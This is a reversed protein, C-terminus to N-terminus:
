LTFEEKTFFEVPKAEPYLLKSVLQGFAPATMPQVSVLEEAILKPFTKRLIPLSMMTKGMQRGKAFVVKRYNELEEPDLLSM